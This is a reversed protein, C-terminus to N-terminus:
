ASVGTDGMADMRLRANFAVTIRVDEGNPDFSGVYHQKWSPFLVLQGPKLPTSLHSLQFSDPMNALPIDFINDFPISFPSRTTAAFLTTTISVFM